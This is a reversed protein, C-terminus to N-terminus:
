PWFRGIIDPRDAFYVHPFAGLTNYAECGCPWSKDPSSAKTVRYAWSVDGATEMAARHFEHAPFCLGTRDEVTVYGFRQLRDTMRSSVPLVGCMEHGDIDSGLYMFGGCEAYCRMGGLLADRMSRRMAENGELERAYVEPYGGGIYVGDLKEPLEEDRLPSFYVLEMGCRELAELNARYYFHFAEDMAVGMRFGDYHSPLAAGVGEERSIKRASGAIELIADLDLTQGALAAAEDIRAPLDPTERATVLGLHRSPLEIVAQKTLYGVCPLGTYDMVAQRVLEYHSQGSVRNVLVGRIGSEPRLTQFGKVVAAASAASGAADVVLLVPTESLRALEWTSCRMEKADLGDYYGMVGEIVAIDCEHRLLRRIERRDMLWTDLNYSPRGCVRAHFGPDIYDPGTKYPAVRLGRRKLCAMLLISATTKGCGSQTGAVLIRM